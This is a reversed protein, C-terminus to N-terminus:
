GKICIVQKLTYEINVLDSQNAMVEDISKYAGPIEDVVEIDKRCEVGNTQAILDDKTFMAKAKTRSMKRGAGHSCSCFSEVNGLGRVIFSKAGMSGPIIGLEDKRASVAGKRTVFINSGFHNEMQSYNHHCDIINPFYTVIDFKDHILDYIQWLCRNLMEKRNYKAYQQCWVMDHIYNDFENTNQVLYALDPDPLDIFYKKMLGKAGNIHYDAVAKGIGRSGSHLMLWADNNQDYCIEIFHNGGGLSGMAQIARKVEKSDAAFSTLCGLDDEDFYDYINRGLPHKNIAQGVPISREIESRLKPLKDSIVDIKFPLKVATMGCGIDVGVAAPIIAGKTAIVTGITSGKGAHVDPMVAIHKHIFPMNSLKQLQEKAEEEIDNTWIKIPYKGTNIVQKM